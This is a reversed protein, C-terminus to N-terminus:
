DDDEEQKGVLVEDDDDDEEEEEEEAVENVADTPGEEECDGGFLSLSISLSLSLSLSLVVEAVVVPVLVLVRLEVVDVSFCTESQNPKREQKSVTSADVNSSVVVANDDAVVCDENKPHTPDGKLRELPVLPDQVFKTPIESSAVILKWYVGSSNASGLPSSGVGSDSKLRGRLYQITVM